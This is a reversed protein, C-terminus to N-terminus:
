YADEPLGDDPILYSDPDDKVYRGNVLKGTRQSIEHYAGALCHEITTGDRFAINILVVMMDGIADRRDSETGKGIAHCLEGFEEGLAAVQANIDVDFLGREAHWARVKAELEKM